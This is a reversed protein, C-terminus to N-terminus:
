SPMVDRMAILGILHSELQAILDTKQQTVAKQYIELSKFARATLEKDTGRGKVLELIGNTTEIGLVLGQLDTLLILYTHSVETNGKTTDISNQSM